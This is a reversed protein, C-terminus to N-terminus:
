ESWGEIPLSIVHGVRERLQRVCEICQFRMDVGRRHLDVVALVVLSVHVVDIGRELARSKASRGITSSM